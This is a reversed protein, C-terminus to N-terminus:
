CECSTCCSISCCCTSHYMSNNLSIACAIPIPLNWGGMDRLGSLLNQHFKFSNGFVVWDHWVPNQDWSTLPRPLYRTQYSESNLTDFAGFSFAILEACCLFMFFTFFSELKFQFVWTTYCVCVCVCVCDNLSEYLITDLPILSYWVCLSIIHKFYSDVLIVLLFCLKVTLMLLQAYWLFQAINDALSSIVQVNTSLVNVMQM